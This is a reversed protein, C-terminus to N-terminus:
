AQNEASSEEERKRQEEQRLAQEWAKRDRRIEEQALKTLQRQLAEVVELKVWAPARSTNLASTLEESLDAKEVSLPKNM